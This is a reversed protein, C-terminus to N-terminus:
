RGTSIAASTSPGSTRRPTARTSGSPWRGAPRGRRQRHRGLEHRLGRLLEPHGPAEGVMFANDPTFSEPVNSLASRPRRSPRFRQLGCEMFPDFQEWDEPIETHELDRPIGKMTWPKAVAEFGGILLAGDEAKFYTRGDMDRIYPLSQKM